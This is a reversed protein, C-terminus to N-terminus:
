NNIIIAPTSTSIQQQKGRKCSRRTPVRRCIPRPSKDARWSGAKLKLRRPDKAVQSAADLENAQSVADTSLGLADLVGYVVKELNLTYFHLVKVHGSAIMDRCMQAIYETGYAKVAAADDKIADMDAALKAPVRSKCFKTMKAFGPYANICMLGPAVPCNIGWKKCDECFTIFVQADFFM